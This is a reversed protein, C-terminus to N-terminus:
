LAKQMENVTKVPMKCAYDQCVYIYTDGNNEKGLLLPLTNDEEVSAMVIKNPLFLTNIQLVKELAEKGVVAIELPPFVVSLFGSAWKAFGSPYREIVDGVAQLM